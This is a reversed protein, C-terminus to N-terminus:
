LTVLHSVVLATGDGQILNQANVSMNKRISSDVILQTVASALPSEGSRGQDVACVVGFSALPGLVSKQNDALAIAVSPPGICCREWTAGGGAGIQLDHRAFFAALNPVDMTLTTHPSAACAERLEDLQPNASTSVVEVPGKFGVEERLCHLVSASAGGPDTGGMFIGISRVETHFRYRPANRYAASLLAYRPGTLWRPERTLRGRYKARHDEAWNQDLLIDASLPRDAVDDVILLRCGLVDRLVDHWRADIAYHDVVLWQPSVDLLVAVTDDADRRWTVGAWVSHPPGDADPAYAPGPAPLWHVPFPCDKLLHPAVADLQRVVLIIAAGQEALAEALSLCRRLHGTGITVSADVRLAVRLPVQSVASM